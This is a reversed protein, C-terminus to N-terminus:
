GINGCTVNTLQSLGSINLTAFNNDHAYLTKLNVFAEIGELSTISSFSLNLFVIESAESYQIEGDGNTDVSTYINLSATSNPNVNSAISKSPSALLLKAKFVPDPITVIQAKAFGSIFILLLLIKKM